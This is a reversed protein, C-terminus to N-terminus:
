QSKNIFAVLQPIVQKPAEDPLWHGSGTIVVGDVNSDVLRAQEILFNGSAKEGTLVLMPMTLKNQAFAAFDKADREFARFVEFGARMAGPQAHPRVITATILGLILIAAATLLARMSNKM